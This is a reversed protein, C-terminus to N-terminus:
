INELRVYIQYEAITIHPLPSRYRVSKKRHKDLTQFRDIAYLITRNLKTVRYFFYTVRLSYMYRVHYLVLRTM